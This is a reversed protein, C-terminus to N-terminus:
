GHARVGSEAARATEAHRPAVLVGWAGDALAMAAFEGGDSRNGPLGVFLAGPGALRSDIAVREPGLTGPVTGALTAGASAALHQPTWHKM